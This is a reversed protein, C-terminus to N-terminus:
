KIINPKFEELNTIPPLSGLYLKFAVVGAFLIAVLISAFYAISSHLKKNKAKKIQKPVIFNYM